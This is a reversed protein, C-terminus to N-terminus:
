KKALLISQDETLSVNISKLYEQIIDSVNNKNLWTLRLFITFLLLIMCIAISWHMIRYIRSYNM